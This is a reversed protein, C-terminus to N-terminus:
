KVTKLFPKYETYFSPPIFIKKKKKKLAAVVRISTLFLSSMLTMGSAKAIEEIHSERFPSLIYM